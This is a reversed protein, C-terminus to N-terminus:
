KEVRSVGGGGLWPSAPTFQRLYDQASHVLDSNRIVLRRRVM